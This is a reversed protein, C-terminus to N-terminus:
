SSLSPSLIVAPFRKGAAQLAGGKWVRPSFDPSVVAGFELVKRMQKLDPGETHFGTHWAGSKRIGGGM